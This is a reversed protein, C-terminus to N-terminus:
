GWLYRRKWSSRPADPPPAAARGGQAFRMHLPAMALTFAADIDAGTETGDFQQGLPAMPLSFRGAITETAALQQGLAAMALSFSATVDSSALSVGIDLWINFNGFGNGPFTFSSAFDAFTNPENPCSLPGDTIGGSWFGSTISYWTSGGSAGNWAGATYSGAPLAPPSGYSHLIWGSGAAGSWSPAAVDTGAILTQSVRGFIGIEAPTVAVGAASYFAVYDLVCDAALDFETGLVLPETAGDATGGGTQAFLSFTM